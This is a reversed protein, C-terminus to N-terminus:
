LTPPSLILLRADRLFPVRELAISGALGLLTGVLVPSMGQRMMSSIVGRSTAGLAMRIGIERTRQSVLFAMVGYIGVAALTLSLLTLAGAFAGIVRLLARQLGVPGDELSVLDLTALVTPDVSEVASQVAVLAKDRNGRLGVLFQSGRALPSAPNVPLYVH